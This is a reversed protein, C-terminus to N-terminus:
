PKNSTVVAWESSKDAKEKRTGKRESEKEQLAQRTKETKKIEEGDLIDAM